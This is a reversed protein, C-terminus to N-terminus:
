SEEPQSLKAAAVGRNALAVLATASRADLDANGFPM